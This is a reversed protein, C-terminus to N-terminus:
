VLRAEGVAVPALDALRADLAVAEELSVVRGEFPEHSQKGCLFQWEAEDDRSVVLMFISVPREFRFDVQGGTMDISVPVEPLM